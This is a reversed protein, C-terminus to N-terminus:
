TGKEIQKRTEANQVRVPRPSFRQKRRTEINKKESLLCVFNNCTRKMLKIKFTKMSKMLTDSENWLQNAQVSM